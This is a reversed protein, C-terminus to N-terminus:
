RTTTEPLFLTILQEQYPEFDKRLRDVLESLSTEDVKSLKEIEEQVQSKFHGIKISMLCVQKFREGPKFISNLITLLTLIVSLYPVTPKLKMFPSALEQTILISLLASIIPIMLLLFLATWKYIFIKMIVNNITEDVSQALDYLPYCSNRYNHKKLILKVRALLSKNSEGSSNTM